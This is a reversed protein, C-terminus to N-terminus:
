VEGIQQWCLGKVESEARRRRRGWDQGGRRGILVQPNGPSVDSGGLKYAHQETQKDEERTETLGLEGRQWRGM